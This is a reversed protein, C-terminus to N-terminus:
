NMNQKVLNIESKEDFEEPGPPYCLFKVKRIDILLTLHFLLYASILIYEQIAENKNVYAHCQINNIFKLHTPFVTLLCYCYTVIGILKAIISVFEIFKQNKKVSVVMTLTLLFMYIFSNIQPNESKKHSRLIFAFFIRLPMPTMISIRFYINAWYSLQLQRLFSPWMGDEYPMNDICTFYKKGFSHFYNIGDSKWGTNYDTNNLYIFALGLFVVSIITLFGAPWLISIYFFPMDDKNYTGAKKSGKIKCTTCCQIKHQRQLSQMM